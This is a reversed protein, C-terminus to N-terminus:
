HTYVYVYCGDSYVSLSFCSDSAVGINSNRRPHRKARDETARNKQGELGARKGGVRRCGENEENQSERSSRRSKQGQRLFNLGRERLTEKTFPRQDRSLQDLFSRSVRLVM